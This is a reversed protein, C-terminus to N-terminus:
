ERLAGFLDVRVIGTPPAVTAHVEAREIAYTAMMDDTGLNRHLVIQNFKRTFLRTLEGHLDDSRARLEDVLDSYCPVLLGHEPECTLDLDRLSLKAVLEASDGGVFDFGITSFVRAPTRKRGDRITLTAEAGLEFTRPTEQGLRATPPLSLLIDQIRISLMERVVSDDNFRAELGADDLEQDLFGTRWLYYLVANIADLEFEMSLPATTDVAGTRTAGGLYVPLVDPRAGDLRLALPIAAYKGTAIEFSQDPCYEFRLERGGPLPVPPPPTFANRLAAEIEEKATAAAVESADFLDAIWQYVRGDVDVEADVVARIKIEQGEVRPFLAVTIPVRGNSFALEVSIGLFGGLQGIWSLNMRSVREFRGIPWQKFGSFEETAIRKAMHAVTGPGAKGDDLFRQGVLLRVSCPPKAPDQFPGVLQTLGVRREFGGRYSVKWEVRHLGSGPHAADLRGPLDDILVRVRDFVGAPLDAAIDLQPAAPPATVRVRLSDRHCHDLAVPVLAAHAALLGLGLLGPVHRGVASM